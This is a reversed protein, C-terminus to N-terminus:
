NLTMSLILLLRNGMTPMSLLNLDLFLIQGDEYKVHTANPYDGADPSDAIPTIQVASDGDTTVESFDWDGDESFDILQNKISVDYIIVGDPFNPMELTQAFTIQSIILCVFFLTKKM